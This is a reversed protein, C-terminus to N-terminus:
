HIVVGSAAPSPRKFSAVKQGMKFSLELLNPRMMEFQKRFVEMEDAKSTLCFIPEDTIALAENITGLITHLKGMLDAVLANDVVRNEDLALFENIEKKLQTIQDPLIEVSRTLVDGVREIGPFENDM